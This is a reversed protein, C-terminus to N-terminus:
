FKSFISEDSVTSERKEIKRLRVVTRLKFLAMVFIRFYGPHKLIRKRLGQKHQRFLRQSTLNKWIFLLQNREQIRSRYKKPFINNTSEHEHTVLARPDWLLRYGRKMARYSLDIDEWYFPPFLSEDMGKLDMWISRRYVGSGGSIWFTDHIKQVASGPKHEIFGNKIFGSAWSYGTESLSVGFVNEDEFHPIVHELFNASPSVDSNLLCVLTSKASRAGTNVTASFRRNKKHKIVQVKPFRKTLFAVSDDTSADDVVIIEAINNEKNKTAAVVFPLNQRLLEVGNFNPIVISVQLNKKM